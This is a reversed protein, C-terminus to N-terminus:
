IFGSLFDQFEMQLFSHTKEDEQIQFSPKSLYFWTLALLSIFGLVTLASHSLVKNKLNSFIIRGKLKNFM